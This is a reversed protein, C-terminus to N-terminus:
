HHGEGGPGHGGSGRGCRFSGGLDPCAVVCVADGGGAPTVCTGPVSEHWGITCTAGAELGTCATTASPRLEQARACARPGTSAPGLSCVGTVTKGERGTFTCADGAASSACADIAAQPPTHVRGCVLASGDRATVCVGDHVDGDPETAQCADGSAKGTCADVLAQPPSRPNPACAVTAGDITKRCTGDTTTGGDTSTLTCADGANKSTCADIQAQSPACLLTGTSSIASAFAAALASSTNSSTTAGAGAGCATVLALAAAGAAMTLERPLRNLNM